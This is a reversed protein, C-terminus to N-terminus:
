DRLEKIEVNLDDMKTEYIDEILGMNAKIGQMIHLVIDGLGSKEMIDMSSLDFLAQNYLKTSKFM